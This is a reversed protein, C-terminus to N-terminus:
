EGRHRRIYAFLAPILGEDGAEIQGILLNCRACLLDRLRGSEHDHDIALSRVTGKYTYTEPQHCVACLGGQVEVMEDYEALTIGYGNRVLNRERERGRVLDPNDARFRAAHRRGQARVRERNADVWARHTEAYMEPNAARYARKQEPTSM